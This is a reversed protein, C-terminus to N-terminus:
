GLCVYIVRPTEWQWDISFAARGSMPYEAGTRGLAEGMQFHPLSLLRVAARRVPRALPRGSQPRRLSPFTVRSITPNPTLEPTTM